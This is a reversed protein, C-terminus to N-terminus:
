GDTATGSFTQFTETSSAASLVGSALVPTLGGYSTGVNFDYNVITALAAPALATTKAPAPNAAHFFLTGGSSFAGRTATLTTAFAFALAAFLLIRRSRLSPIRMTKEQHKVGGYMRIALTASHLCLGLVSELVIQLFADS